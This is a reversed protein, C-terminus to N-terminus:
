RAGEETAWYTAGFVQTLAATALPSRDSGRAARLAAPIQAAHVVVSLFLDTWWVARLARSDPARGSTVTLAGAGLYLWGLVPIARLAVTRVTM